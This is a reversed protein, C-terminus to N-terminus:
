LCVSLCLGFKMLVYVYDVKMLMYVYGVIMFMYEYLLVFLYSLAMYVRIGIM